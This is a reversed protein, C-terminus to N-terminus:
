PVQNERAKWQSCAPWSLRIDTAPGHTDNLDCKIYTGGMNRRKMHGCDGCHHGNEALKHGMPHLGIRVNTRQTPTGGKFWPHPTPNCFQCGDPSDCFLCM